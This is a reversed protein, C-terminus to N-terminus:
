PTALARSRGPRAAALPRPEFTEILGLCELHLASAITSALAEPSGHHARHVLVFSGIASQPLPGREIAAAATGGDILALQCEALLRNLSLNWERAAEVRNVNQGLALLSLREAVISASKVAAGAHPSEPGPTQGSITPGFEISITPNALNADALLLHVARQEHIARALTLLTTTCGCASTAGLFLLGRMPERVAQACLSAALGHIEPGASSALLLATLAPWPLQEFATLGAPEPWVADM